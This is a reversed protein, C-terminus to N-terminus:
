STRVSSFRPLGAAWGSISTTGPCITRTLGNFRMNARLSGGWQWSIGASAPVGTTSAVMQLFETGRIGQATKCHMFQICGYPGFCGRLRALARRTAPEDSFASRDSIKGHGDSVGAVGPAGHGHFRLLFLDRATRVIETVAEEIGNCMGGILLPHGGAGRIFKDIDFLEPDFVDICDIIQLREGTALRPWTHQGIGGDIVLPPHERQFHSVAAKTLRGFDGDVTLSAGTRNLLMQSVAVAPLKDGQQVWVFESM